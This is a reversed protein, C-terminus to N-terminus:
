AGTAGEGYGDGAHREGGHDALNRAFDHLRHRADDPVDTARRALTDKIARYTAAELGCHLCRELHRAVRRAAVEDLEGDLHAQLLRASEECSAEDVTRRAWFRRM